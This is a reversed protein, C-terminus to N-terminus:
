GTATVPSTEIFATLRSVELRTSNILTVCIDVSTTNEVETLTANRMGIAAVISLLLLLIGLLTLFGCFLLHSEIVTDTVQINIIYGIGLRSFVMPM